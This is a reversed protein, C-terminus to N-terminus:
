PESSPVVRSRRVSRDRQGQRTALLRGPGRDKLIPATRGGGSEIPAVQKPPAEFLLDLRGNRLGAASGSDRVSRSKAESTRRVTGNRRGSLLGIETNASDNYNRTRNDSRDCRGDCPAAPGTSRGRKPGRRRATEFASWGLNGPHFPGTQVAPRCRRRTPQTPRSRHSDHGSASYTRSARSSSLFTPM